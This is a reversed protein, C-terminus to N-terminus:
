HLMRGGEGKRSDQLKNDKLDLILLSSSIEGERYGKVKEKRGNNPSQIPWWSWEGVYSVLLILFFIIPAFSQSAM